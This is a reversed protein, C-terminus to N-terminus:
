KKKRFLLFIVTSFSIALGFFFLGLLMWQTSSALTEDAQRSANICISGIIISAIISIILKGLVISRWM